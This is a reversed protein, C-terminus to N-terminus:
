KGEGIGLYIINSTTPHLLIQRVTQSTPLKHTEWTVGGNTSKFLTSGVATYLTNSDIPSVGVATVRLSTDRVPLFVIAWSVGGDISRLMGQETALFVVGALRQDFAIDLFRRASITGNGASVDTIAYNVWTSGQDTSKYIGKNLALAYITNNDYARIRVFNDQLDTVAQWTQGEDTSRIIEGNALGALVIRSNVRSLTISVVANSRSPETYIDAWTNGGDPSKIIKGNSGAIGVAYIIESKGPDSALDLVNIGTLIQRWSKASDETKHIGSASGLYITDPNKSDFTLINVSVGGINHKQDIQNSAQFNRGADDSKLVGRTGSGGGFLNCSAATLSLGFLLAAFKKM